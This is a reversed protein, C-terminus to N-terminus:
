GTGYSNYDFFAWIEVRFQCARLIESLYVSVKAYYKTLILMKKYLYLFM